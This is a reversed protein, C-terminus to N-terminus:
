DLHHILLSLLEYQCYLLNNIIFVKCYTILLLCKLCLDATWTDHYM